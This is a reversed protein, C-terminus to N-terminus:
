YLIWKDETGEITEYFQESSCGLDKCVLDCIRSLVLDKYQRKIDEHYEIDYLVYLDTKSNLFVDCVDKITPENNVIWDIIQQKLSLSEKATLTEYKM